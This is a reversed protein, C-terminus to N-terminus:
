TWRAGPVDVKGRVVKTLQLQQSLIFIIFRKERDACLLISFGGSIIGVRHMCRADCACMIYHVCVFVICLFVWIFGSSGQDRRSILLLAGMSSSQCIGSQFHCSFFLQLPVKLSVCFGQVGRFLCGSATVAPVIM